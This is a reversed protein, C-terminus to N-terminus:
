AMDEHSAAGAIPAGGVGAAYALIEDEDVEGGAFRAVVRGRHMVLIADSLHMVEPLESSILVIAVGQNALDLLVNHIEAKAGVDVGRTPEDVILIRPSTALWMALLVKQQNGGSLGIVKQEVSRARIRLQRMYTETVERAEADRMFGGASFRKLNPAAVNWALSMALFLGAQKRDETLYGMGAAVADRPSRFRVRHGEVAMTGADPQTLGFLAQALESRGAGVLGALGLIEGEHLTFSIDAFQGARSLGEVQLASETGFARPMYPGSVAQFARGVMEAVIEQETVGDTRWTGRYRGDRLVTIRDSIEFVERLHHSIYIIGLGRDRLSRITAMLRETETTTLSSTPEDLILVRARVSLAKAIEVIQQSALSLLGVQDRPDVALRFPALASTAERNMRKVDILGFRGVPQRGAFINEAVSLQLVLSLEQFVISVGAAEADRRNDFVVPQGDILIEGEDPRYVGALIQMLTSKGAGNEGVLAHVEGPLVSFDVGDLARIGPFSKGIGIAAIIPQM